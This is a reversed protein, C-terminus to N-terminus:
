RVHYQYIYGKLKQCVAIKGPKQLVGSWVKVIYVYILVSRSITFCYSNTKM